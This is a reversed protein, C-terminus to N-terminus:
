DVGNSGRTSLAEQSACMSIVSSLLLYFEVHVHKCDAYLVLPVTLNSNYLM